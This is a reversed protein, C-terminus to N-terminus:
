KKFIEMLQKIDDLFLLAAVYVEHAQAQDYTHSSINRKRRYDFWNHVNGILGKEAAVRILDNYNLRDIEEPNDSMNELNRRIMKCALEYSFEFRQIVADRLEEDNKDLISRKVAKELSAVAKELSTFDLKM